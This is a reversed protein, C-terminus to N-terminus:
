EKSAKLGEAKEFQQVVSWAAKSDSRQVVKGRWRRATMPYHKICADERKDYRTICNWPYNELVYLKLPHQFLARLLAGQDRKGWRQWEEHWARFFTATRENRQFAFVGGNLQVLEGTGLQGFTYDCEDHNDSRKMQWAIHYKAPNKAIVMDWGDSLVNFLFSIDACVETDADLYMVYQWDRPALDYIRTKAHRGGIDVDDCRIFVDEVGLPESGILGVEADAMHEKFSAVAGLACRRSPEGYAVYIVGRKGHRDSEVHAQAKLDLFARKHGEAWSAANYPEAVAALAERDHDADLAREIAKCMGDFDSTEYRYVGPEDPLDDLLGVGRPVVVPVGCALAELPPMPVGEVSSTCLLVDLSNYWGPLEGWNYLRTPCPWGRGSGVLEVRKGLKNSGALRAVLKEGKRGGPHVFGSVGVKPRENGPKEVVKFQESVAPRNCLASPGYVGLESLYQRAATVRLDASQAALEWWFLKWERDSEKHTFWCSVPTVHWDSFREGYEVYCIWHTLDAKGTPSDTYRWGTAASLARAQRDLVNNAGKDHYVINVNM